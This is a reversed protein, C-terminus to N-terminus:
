VEQRIFSRALKVAGAADAAYGDAGIRRAFAASLPAGGVMILPRREPYSARVDEVVTKMGMMTTSMLSSLAIIDAGKELAQSAFLSLPVNRGLDYVEFGDAELMMAVINKGIDHTDGEVVGILVRGKARNDTPMAPKLVNLGAYLADASVVVEPIFFEGSAYLEGVKEMGRSLGSEIGERAPIGTELSLRAMEVAKEIDAEVVAEALGSLIKDKKM